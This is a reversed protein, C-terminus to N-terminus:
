SRLFPVRIQNLAEKRQDCGCSKGTTQEYLVALRDLGTIRAIEAAADGLGAGARIGTKIKM